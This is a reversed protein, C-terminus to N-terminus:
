QALSVKWFCFSHVSFVVQACKILGGSFRCQSVSSLGTSSNGHSRPKEEGGGSPVQVAKQHRRQNKLYVCIGEAESATFSLSLDLHLTIFKRM